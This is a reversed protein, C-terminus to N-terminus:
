VNSIIYFREDLIPELVRKVDDWNLGGLGCGPRPIIVKTWKKEDAIKILEQCSKVILEIDANQEVTYKVPLIVIDWPMAFEEKVEIVFTRLGNLLIDDGVVDDLGKFMESAQYACGGGMVNKGNKMVTGNTTICIADCEQEFLEGKIEQM